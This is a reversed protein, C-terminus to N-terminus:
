LKKSKLLAEELRTKIRAQVIIRDIPMPNYDKMYEFPIDDWADSHNQVKFGRRRCENYLKAYRKHLYGLKDYFFKVHGKGLCFYDPKGVLSFKGKKIANPIRTIERHEAILHKDSLEKARIGCNIRTM